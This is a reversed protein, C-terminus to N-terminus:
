WIAKYSKCNLILYMKKLGNNESKEVLM